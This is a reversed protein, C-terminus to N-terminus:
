TEGKGALFQALREALWGLGRPVPVVILDSGVVQGMGMAKLRARADDWSTACVSFGWRKGDYNYECAYDTWKEDSMSM